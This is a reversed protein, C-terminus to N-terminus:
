APMVPSPSAVSEVVNSANRSRVALIGCALFLLGLLGPLYPFAATWWGQDIMARSPESPDYLVAVQQGVHWGPHSSGVPHRFRIPRRGKPTFEVVPAWTTSGSNTSAVLEVVTGRASLAHHLFETRHRVWLWSGTVAAVGIVIMVFGAVASVRASRRTALSVDSLSLLRSRDYHAEEVVNGSLVHRAFSTFSGLKALQERHKRFQWAISGTVAVATAVSFWGTRFISVFLACCGVGIAVLAAGFYAFAKTDLRARTPDRVDALVFVRAGVAYSLTGAGFASEFISRGGVPHSFAVVPAFTRMGERDSRQVYGVIEGDVRMTELPDMRSALIVHVGVWAFLLGVWLFLIEV